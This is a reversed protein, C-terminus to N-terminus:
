KVILVFGTMAYLGDDKKVFIIRRGVDRTVFKVTTDPKTEADWSIVPTNKSVKRNGLKVGITAGSEFHLTKAGKANSSTTSYPAVVNLTERKTLGSLDITSGDHLTTGHFYGLTSPTLTGFVDIDFAGHNYNEFSRIQTYDLVTFTGSINNANSNLRFSVNNTAVVSNTTVFTGNQTGTYVSGNELTVNAFGFNKTGAIKVSLEHGGLDAYAAHRDGSWGFWATGSAPLSSSAEMYSNTTLHLETVIGDGPDRINGGDLVYKYGTYGYRELFGLLGSTASANGSGDGHIVVESGKGGFIDKNLLSTM